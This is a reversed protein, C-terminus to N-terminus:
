TVEAYRCVNALTLGPPPHAPFVFLLPLVTMSLSLILAKKFSLLAKLCQAVLQFIMQEIELPTV